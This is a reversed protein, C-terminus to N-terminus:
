GHQIFRLTPFMMGTIPTVTIGKVSFYTNNAQYWV